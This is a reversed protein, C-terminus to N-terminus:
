RALNGLDVGYRQANKKMYAGREKVAEGRLGASLIDLFTHWGIANQKEFRDLIPLHHLTLSVGEGRPVLTFTLYSEPYASVADPGDGPGFVNWTYSLRHPPAWQTVTGRIHGGMLRVTGGIRPEITSDDGFWQPLRRTDTLFEWVREIPGPLQREFSVALVRSAQGNEEQALEAAYRARYGAAIEGENQDSYPVFEGDAGRLFVNLYAEWGGLFGVLDRVKVGPPFSHILKLSCGGGAPTLEWRLLSQPLGNEEFWTYELLREPELATITGTMTVAIERFQIALTGGIRLDVEVDGLWNKLVREDTLAAWVKAVPRDILRDFTVVHGGDSQRTLKGDVKM